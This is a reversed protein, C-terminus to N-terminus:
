DLYIFGFCGYWKIWGKFLVNVVMEVEINMFLFIEVFKIFYDMVVFIYFYGNELKLFLGVLDM